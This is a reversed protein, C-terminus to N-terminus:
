HLEDHLLGLARLAECHVASMLKAEDGKFSLRDMAQDIEPPPKSGELLDRVFPWIEVAGHECSLVGREILAEVQFLTLAFKKSLPMEDWVKGSIPERSSNRARKDARGRAKQIARGIAVIFHDDSCPVEIAGILSETPSRFWEPEQIAHGQSFHHVMRMNPIRWCDWAWDIFPGAAKDLLVNSCVLLSYDQHTAALRREAGFCTEVCDIAYGEATLVRQVEANQFQNPNVLLLSAQVIGGKRLLSGLTIHM